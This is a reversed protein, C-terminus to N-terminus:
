EAAAPQPVDMPQVDPDNLFFQYIFLVLGFAFFTFCFSVWTWLFTNTTPTNGVLPEYPWNETWSWTTDPRRAVTTLASFVIFDATQRALAPTLSYAPTWGTVPDAVALSRALGDRVRAVASAVPLNLTRLTERRSPSAILRMWWPSLTLESKM